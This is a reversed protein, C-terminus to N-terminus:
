FPIIKLDEALTTNPFLGKAEAEQLHPSSYRASFHTLVLLRVRAESAVQAAQRATMHRYKAALERHEELFTSECLLLAAEQAIQIASPCYQTDLVIAVADGKHISSVERLLIKQGDVILSGEERIKRVLHGEIGFKQLTKADFTLRDPETIRWGVSEIRHELLAAEIRFRGDDHVIGSESVPHEILNLTDYYVSGFRLRDFYPKGSAPYYCHIPRQVKDNNLRTLISGLGLCHDPHFHSIFIRTISSPAIQAFLLQRQTGDGPDFLLSEGNWRICYGSVNREVTPQLCACGLIVLERPTTM